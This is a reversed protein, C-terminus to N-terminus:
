KKKWQQKFKKENTEFKSIDESGFDWKGSLDIKKKPKMPTCILKVLHPPSESFPISITKDKM